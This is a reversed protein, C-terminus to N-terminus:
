DFKTLNQAGVSASPGPTACDSGLACAPVSPQPIVPTFGATMNSYTVTPNGSLDFALSGDFGTNIITFGTALSVAFHITNTGNQTVTVTGASTLGGKCGGTGDCHDSTLEYVDAQAPNVSLLGVLAAGAMLATLRLALLKVHDRILQM